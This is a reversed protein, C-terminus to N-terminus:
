NDLVVIERLDESDLEESSEPEFAVAWPLDLPGLESELETKVVLVIKRLEWLDEVPWTDRGRPPDNLTLAIVLAPQGSSDEEVRVRANRVETAGAHKDRLAEPLRDVVVM